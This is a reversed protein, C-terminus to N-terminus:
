SMKMVISTLFLYYYIFQYDDKRGPYVILKFLYMFYLYPCKFLCVLLMCTIDYHSEPALRLLVIFYISFQIARIYLSAFLRKM